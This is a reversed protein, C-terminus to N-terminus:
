QIAEAANEPIGDVGWGQEMTVPTLPHQWPFQATYVFVKFKYPNKFSQSVTSTCTDATIHNAVSILMVSRAELPSCSLWFNVYMIQVQIKQIFACTGTQM